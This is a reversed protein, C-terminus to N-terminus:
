PIGLPVWIDISSGERHSSSMFAVEWSMFANKWRSCATHRETRRKWILGSETIRDVNAAM